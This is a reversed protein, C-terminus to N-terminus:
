TLSNTSQDKDVTDLGTQLFGENGYNYFGAEGLKIGGDM